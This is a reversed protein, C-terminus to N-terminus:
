GFFRCCGTICFFGPECAPDGPLGCAPVGPECRLDPMGADEGPRGADRRAGGDTTGGDPVVVPPVCDAPIEDRGFCIECRGCDNVCDGVPTCPRCAEDDMVSARNCTPAGGEDLTGIFIWRDSGDPIECCGFCDCGNPTLPGCITHCRDSQEDPCDASPPAPDEYPCTLNPSLPDCRHDWRCDDNGGGGSGMDQDYYCDIKCAPTDGGPIDLFFGAENNDCPGLCDPDLSDVLGDGDDDRCNGCARERGDCLAPFCPGADFPGADTGPGGDRGEGGGDGPLPDGDRREGADAPVDGDRRPGADVIAGDMGGGDAGGGDGAGDDDGCAALALSVVLWGGLGFFRRHM